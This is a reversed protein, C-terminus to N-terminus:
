HKQISPSLFLVTNTFSIAQKMSINVSFVVGGFLSDWNFKLEVELKWKWNRFSQPFSCSLMKYEDGHIIETQGAESVARCLEIGRNHRPRKM